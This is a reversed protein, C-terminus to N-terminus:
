LKRWSPGVGGADAESRDWRFTRDERRTHTVGRRDTWGLVFGVTVTHGGQDSAVDIAALGSPEVGDPEDEDVFDRKDAELHVTGFRVEWQGDPGYVPYATRDDTAALGPRIAEERGRIWSKLRVWGARLKPLKADEDLAKLMALPSSVVELLGDDCATRLAHHHVDGAVVVTPLGRHRRRCLTQWLEGYQAPYDEPGYEVKRRTVGRHPLHGVIPKALALCVLRDDSELLEILRRHDEPRMYGAGPGQKRITRRWRTDVLVVAVDGTDIIQLQEPSHDEGFADFELASAFLAYAEGAAAGWRGQAAPHTPAQRFFRFAQRLVRRATHGLLTLWSPHPYGNWFEHDDPLFWNSTRAMSRHLNNPAENPSLGWTRLYRDFIISRSKATTTTELWPADVYVQDGLWLNYSPVPDAPGVLQDYAHDIVAAHKGNVDFCSGALLRLRRDGAAPATTVSAQGIPFRHRDTLRVEYGTGAELGDITVKAWHLIHRPESPRSEVPTRHWDTVAVAAVTTDGDDVELTLGDFPPEGLRTSLVEATTATAALGTLRTTM